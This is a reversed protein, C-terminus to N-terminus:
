NSTRLGHRSHTAWTQKGMSTFSKQTHKAGAYLRGWMQDVGCAHFVQAYAAHIRFLEPSPADNGTFKIQTTRQGTSFKIHDLLTHGIYTNPENLVPEFYCRFSRVLWHDFDCLLIAHRPSDTELEAIAELPTDTWSQFMEWSMDVSDTPYTGSIPLIRTVKTPQIGRIIEPLKKNAVMLRQMYGADWIDAQILPRNGERQLLLDHLSPQKPLTDDSSGSDELRSSRSPNELRLTLMPVILHNLWAEAVDVLTPAPDSSTQADIIVLAVYRTGSETPAHKLMAEVLRDLRYPSDGKPPEQLSASHTTIIELAQNVLSRTSISITSAYKQSLILSPSM